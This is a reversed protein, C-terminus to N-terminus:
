RIPRRPRDAGMRGQRARRLDNARELLRAKMMQLRARQVPTLFAALERDEEQDLALQQARVRQIGDMYIRVSDPNAAVGPRMQGQLALRYGIAERVLQRRRPGIRDQTAKLQRMQGDSLGLDAQVRQAFRREIELRLLEAGTTDDDRPDQGRAGTALAGVCVLAIWAARM